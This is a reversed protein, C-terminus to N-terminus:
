ESQDSRRGDQMSMSIGNEHMMMSGSVIHAIYPNINLSLQICISCFTTLQISSTVWSALQLVYHCAHKSQDLLSPCDLLLFTFASCCAPEFSDLWPPSDFPTFPLAALCVAM